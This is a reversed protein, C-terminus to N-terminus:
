LHEKVSKIIIGIICSVISGLISVGALAWILDIWANIVAEGYRNILWAAVFLEILIILFGCIIEQTYLELKEGWPELEQKPTCEFIKEKKMAYNEYFQIRQEETYEKSSIIFSHTEQMIRQISYLKSSHLNYKALIGRYMEQFTQKDIFKDNIIYFIMIKIIETNADKIRQAKRRQYIPRFFHFYVIIIFVIELPGINFLEINFMGMNGKGIPM